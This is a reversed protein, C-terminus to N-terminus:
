FYYGVRFTSWTSNGAVKTRLSYEWHDFRLGLGPIYNWEDVKTYYGAEGNMFFVGVAFRAGLAVEWIDIAPRDDKGGFRNWGISGSLDILPILPYDFIGQLGYGTNYDIGFDSRPFTSQAAVGWYNGPHWAKERPASPT